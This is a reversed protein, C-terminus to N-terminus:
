NFRQHVFQFSPTGLVSGQIVGSEIKRPKSIVEDVKVCQYRDQLFSKIWTLLPHQLGINTLKQILRQHPVKDFAECLDFYIVM